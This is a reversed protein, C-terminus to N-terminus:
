KKSKMKDFTPNLGDRKVAGEAFAISPLLDAAKSEIKSCLEKLAKDVSSDIAKDIAKNAAKEAPSRIMEQLQDVKEKIKGDCMSHIIDSLIDKVGNAVVIKAALVSIVVDNNPYDKYFQKPGKFVEHEYGKDGSAWVDWMVNYREWQFADPLDQLVDACKEGIEKLMDSDVIEPVDMGMASM